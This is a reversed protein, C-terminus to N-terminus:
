PAKATAYIKTIDFSPSGRVNTPHSWATEYQELCGSLWICLILPYDVKIGDKSTTPTHKCYLHKCIPIENLFDRWFVTCCLLRSMKIEAAITQCFNKQSAIVAILSQSPLQRRWLRAGLSIVLLRTLSGTSKFNCAGLFSEKKLYEKDLWILPPSDKRRM